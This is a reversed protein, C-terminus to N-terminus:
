GENRWKCAAPAAVPHLRRLEALCRSRCAFYLAAATLRRPAYLTRETMCVHQGVHFLEVIRKYKTLM